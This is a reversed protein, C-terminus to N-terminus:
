RDPPLHLNANEDNDSENEDSEDKNYSNDNDLPIYTSDNDYNDAEDEPELFPRRYRDQIDLGRPNQRALHYVGNIVDQPLTLPTFSQRNLRRSNMLSMFLYVGKANGTPRLSIGGTTRELLTNDHSKHIQAYKGFQLRYHKTYDITLGTIIQRPSLNGRVSTSPPLSNIWFIILPDLKVIM